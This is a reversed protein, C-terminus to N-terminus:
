MKTLSNIAEVYAWVTVLFIVSICIKGLIGYFPIIWFFPIIFFLILDTPIALAIAFIIKFILYIYHKNMFIM